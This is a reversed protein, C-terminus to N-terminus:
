FLARFIYWNIGDSVLKMWNNSPEIGLAASASTLTSNDQILYGGASSINVSVSAVNKITLERGAGLTVASPITITQSATSGTFIIYSATSTATGTASMTVVSGGSNQWTAVGNADSTLVKGAAQNGDVIKVKGAVHLKANASDVAAAGTTGIALTGSNTLRMKEAFFPTSGTGTSFIISKSNNANAIHMDQGSGVYTVDNAAGINYATPYNFTSNNIGMWAFGSTNTGNDATAAYGSQAQSGTSNNKVNFQFFDNISGTLDVGTTNTMTGAAINTVGRFYNATNAANGITVTNSGNGTMGTGSGTYGAIVVQNTQGDALPRVDTGIMINGDGTLNNTNSLTGYYYGAKYGLFINNSVSTTNYGANSGIFVNQSGTSNLGAANGFATNDLGTSLYRLATNGFATNNNGTTNGNLSMNGFASNSYGTTNSYLSNYGVSTNYSATNSKLAQTGIATNQTGTYNGSLTSHGIATNNDGTTNVLLANVGLATNFGVSSKGKGVTLGNVTMDTSAIVKGATGSPSTGPTLTINGGNGTGIGNGATLNLAGGANNTGGANQAAITSSNGAGTATNPIVTLAGYIRSKQTLTNGISTSYSGWGVAGADTSVNNGIVISNVDSGGLPWADVGIFINDALDRAPQNYSSYYKGAGKGIAINNNYNGNFLLAEYGIGVNNIGSNNNYLAGKGIGINQNGTTNSNLSYLGLAINDDGTTNDKLVRHGIGVNNYGSTTSFLASDGIATNNYGSTLNYLSSYGLAQNSSGTITGYGVAKAGIITNRFGTSSNFGANYGFFSNYDGTSHGYGSMSGVATNYGSANTGIYLSRYGVAVNDSLVSSSNLANAGIATNTSVNSNPGRGINIGDVVIDSNFTTTNSFTKSGVFTQTGTTVLGPNNADAASLTLTSGSITGGNAYSTTTFTGLSTVASL